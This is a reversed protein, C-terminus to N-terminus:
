TARPVWLVPLKFTTYSSDSSPLHTILAGEAPTDEYRTDAFWYVINNLLLFARQNFSLELQVKLNLNLNLVEVQLQVKSESDSNHQMTNTQVVVAAIGFM